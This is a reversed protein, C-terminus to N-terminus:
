SVTEDVRKAAEDLMNQEKKKMDKEFDKIGKFQEQIEMAKQRVQHQIELTKTEMM